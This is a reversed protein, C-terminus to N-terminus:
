FWVLLLVELIIRIIYMGVWALRHKHIVQTEAIYTKTMNRKTHTTKFCDWNPSPKFYVKFFRGISFFVENRFRVRVRSEHNV